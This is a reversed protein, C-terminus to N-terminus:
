ELIRKLKMQRYYSKYLIEDDYTELDFEILKYYDYNFTKSSDEVFKKDDGTSIHSWLTTNSFRGMLTYYTTFIPEIYDDIKVRM